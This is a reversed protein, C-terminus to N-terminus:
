SMCPGICSGFAACRRSCPRHPAPLATTESSAWYAAYSDALAQRSGLGVNQLPLNSVRVAAPPLPADAFGLLTALGSALLPM